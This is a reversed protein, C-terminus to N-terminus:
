SGKGIKQIQTGMKRGKGLNKMEELRGMGEPIFTKGAGM